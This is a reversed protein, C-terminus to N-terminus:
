TMDNFRVIYVPGNVSMMMTSNRLRRRNLVSLEDMFETFKDTRYVKSAKVFLTTADRNKYTSSVNNKM